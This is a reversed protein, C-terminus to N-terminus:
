RRVHLLAYTLPRDLSVNLGGTAVSADVRGNTALTDVRWPGEALGPVDICAAPRQNFGRFILCIADDEGLSAFGSWNVGDPPSGVPVITGAFMRDRWQKWVAVLSAAEDLTRGPLNSVEFWALPNSFMVTAFLFDGSHAAPGLPDDAYMDANRHPNLWEMRLRLPDVWEALKWLNRLTQHPWYRHWDTYRNEVFVPGVDMLGFYGPRVGATVDFDFVVQGDSGELVADFFRRLNAEGEDTNFTVSDIKVHEIGYTRYLRLVSEADRQHNAFHDASDPAFWLGLGMGRSRAAEVVPELGNAFRQTDVHWFDPDYAYFGEWVGGRAKAEASNSTVGQQWGDDIQVIDVGLKAGAEIEQLIFAENIRSDRNRDGWTNSLQRVIPRRVQRRQYRHLARIRGLRGGAYEVVDFPYGDDTELTVDFGGPQAPTVAIDAEVRRPRAHPLPARKILVRGAGTLVDEFVFLNGTLRLPEAPHVLWQREHVLENHRDTQDALTVQTLRTHQDVHLDAAATAQPATPDSEIGQPSQSM